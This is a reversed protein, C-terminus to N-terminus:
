EMSTKRVVVVQSADVYFDSFDVNTKREENISFGAAIADIKGQQVAAILGGFELNEIVLEKDLKKAVKAMIDMDAGIVNDGSMYEYPPFGPETGVVLKGGAAGINYDPAVGKQDIHSEISAQLSGDAKMEAIVENVVALLESNGKKVAVAYQEPDFGVDVIGLDDNAKVYSEATDRDMIICDIKKQQLSTIADVYKNFREVDKARLLTDSAITDGTTGLQVGIVKFKLDGKEKIKVREVATTTAKTTTAATTETTTAAPACGVMAVLLAFSLLLLIMKNMRKM